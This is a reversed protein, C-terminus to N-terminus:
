RLRLAAPAVLTPNIRTEAYAVLAPYGDGIALKRTAFLVVVALQSRGVDRSDLGEDAL